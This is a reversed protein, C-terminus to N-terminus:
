KKPKRVTRSRPTTRTSNENSIEDFRKSNENGVHDIHGHLTNFHNNLLLILEDNNFNRSKNIDEYVERISSLVDKTNNIKEVLDDIINEYNYHDMIKTTDYELKGESQLCLIEEIIKNIVVKKYEDYKKDDNDLVFIEDKFKDIIDYFIIKSSSKDEEYIKELELDIAKDISNRDLSNLINIIHEFSNKCTLFIKSENSLSDKMSHEYLRAFIKGSTESLSTEIHDRLTFNKSIYLEQIINKLSSSM